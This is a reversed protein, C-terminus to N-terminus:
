RAPRRDTGRGPSPGTEYTGSTPTLQRLTPPAVYVFPVGDFSVDYGATRLEGAVYEVSAEYGPTGAARTGGNADAIAQLAAQHARVGELTVCEALKAHTNNTRSDCAPPGALVPPALVAAAVVGAAGVVAAVGARAIARPM